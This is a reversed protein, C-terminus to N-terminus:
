QAWGYKGIAMTVQIVLPLAIPVAGIVLSLCVLLSSEISEKRVRTQVVFILLTILVTIFILRRVTQLIQAEFFGVARGKEGSKMVLEAAKGIETELGTYEVSAFCEGSIVTM